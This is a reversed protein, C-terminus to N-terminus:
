RVGSIGMVLDDIPRTSIGPVCAKQSSATRAKGARRRPEPIGPFCSGKRLKPIRMAIM